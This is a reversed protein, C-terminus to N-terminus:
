AKAVKRDIAQASEDAHQSFVPVQGTQKLYQANLRDITQSVIAEKESELRPPAM